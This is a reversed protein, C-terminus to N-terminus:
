LRQFIYESGCYMYMQEGLYINQPAVGEFMWYNKLKSTSDLFSIQVFSLNKGRPQMHCQVVTPNASPLYLSCNTFGMCCYHAPAVWLGGGKGHSGFVVELGQVGMYYLQRCHHIPRWWEANKPGANADDPKFLSIDWLLIM